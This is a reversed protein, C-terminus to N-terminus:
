PKVAIKVIEEEARYVICTAGEAVTSHGVFRALPIEIENYEEDALVVIKEEPGSGRVYMVQCEQRDPEIKTLKAGSGFKQVREKGTDLEDYTVNYAAAGRGQKHPQWDTVQGFKDDFRLIM